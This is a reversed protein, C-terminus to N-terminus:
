EYYMDRMVKEKKDSEKLKESYMDQFGKEEKESEEQEWEEWKASISPFIANVTDIFVQRDGYNCSVMVKVGNPLIMRVRFKPTFIAKLFHLFKKM